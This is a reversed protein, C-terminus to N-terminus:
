GIIMKPVTQVMTTIDSASLGHGLLAEIFLRLAEAPHEVNIQGRDTTLCVHEPGIAKISSAIEELSSSGDVTNIWCKEIIVGLRTLEIQDSLSIKTREWDPHTLVMNGGLARAAKCLAFSERPSLHGTGLFVEYKKTIEIIELVEKKIRGEGDFITLGPRILFDGHMNGFTLCHATDKTPMWIFKGGMRLGSEVAFPNLGGVPWNLTVSGYLKTKAAGAYLNAIYARAATPEYHCKMMMGAMGRCDAERALEFDDLGRPIHSPNSHTHLDYAGKLLESATLKNKENRAM